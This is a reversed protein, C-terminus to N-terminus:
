YQEDLLDAIQDFTLGLRDNLRWMPQLEGEYELVMDQSNHNGKINAWERVANPLFNTAGLMMYWNDSKVKDWKAVGLSAAIDCLVGFADFQDSDNRLLYKGQTYIGSRLGAVWLDKVKQDMSRETDDYIVGSPVEIPSALDTTENESM